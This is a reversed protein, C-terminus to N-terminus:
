ELANKTKDFPEYFPTQLETVTGIEWMRRLDNLLIPRDKMRGTWVNGPAWRSKLEHVISFRVPMDGNYYVVAGSVPRNEKYLDLEFM